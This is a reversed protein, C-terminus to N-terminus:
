QGLTPLRCPVDESWDPFSIAALDDLESVGFSVEGSDLWLRVDRDSFRLTIRGMAKISEISSTEVVVSTAETLEASIDFVPVGSEHHGDNLFSPDAFALPTELVSLSVLRGSAPSVTADFVLSGNSAFIQWAVGVSPELWQAMLPVYCDGEAVPSQAEPVFSLIKV